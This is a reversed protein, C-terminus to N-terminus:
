PLYPYLYRDPALEEGDRAITMTATLILQDIITFLEHGLVIRRLKTPLKKEFILQTNFSLIIYKTILM